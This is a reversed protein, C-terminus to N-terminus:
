QTVEIPPRTTRRIKEPCIGLGLDFNFHCKGCITIWNEPSLNRYNDDICHMQPRRKSLKAYEQSSIGCMECYDKGFLKRANRHYYASGGGKWRAASQKARTEPSAKKGKMPSPRDKFRARVEPRKMPNNEGKVSCSHCLPSRQQNWTTKPKGCGICAPYRKRPTRIM